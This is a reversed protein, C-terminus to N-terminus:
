VYKSHVSVRRKIRAELHTGVEASALQDASIIETEQRHEADRQALKSIQHVASRGAGGEAMAPVRDLLCIPCHRIALRRADHSSQFDDNSHIGGTATASRCTSIM